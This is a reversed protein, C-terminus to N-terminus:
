LSICYEPFTGCYVNHDRYYLRGDKAKYVIRYKGSIDDYHKLNTRKLGNKKAWEKESANMYEM